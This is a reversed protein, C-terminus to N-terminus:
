IIDIVKEALYHIAVVILVIVTILHLRKVFRFSHSLRQPEIIKKDMIIFFFAIIIGLPIGILVFGYSLFVEQIFGFDTNSSEYPKLIFYM